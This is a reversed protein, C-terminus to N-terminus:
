RPLDAVHELVDLCVVVDCSADPLPIIEGVGVVYDIELGVQRAHDVGAAIAGHSPDVGVVKAGRRSLEEAIFGGGCGLDFRTQQGLRRGAPRDDDHACAGNQAAHAAM